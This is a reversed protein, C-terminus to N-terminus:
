VGTSIGNTTDTVTINTWTLTMPPSCPPSIAAFITLSFNAKGNQVPFTGDASFSGKNEASPHNGGKNVCLATASVVIHVQSENGLGAEKGSVTLSSGSSSASVTVFHPSGASAPPAALVVAAAIAGLIVIFRRMIM